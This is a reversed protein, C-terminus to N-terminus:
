FFFFFFFHLESKLIIHPSSKSFSNHDSQIFGNCLTDSFDQSKGSRKWEDVIVHIVPWTRNRFSVAFLPFFVCPKCLGLEHLKLSKWQRMLFPYRRGAQMTCASPISSHFLNPIINIWMSFLCLFTENQMEPHYQFNYEPHTASTNFSPMFHDRKLERLRLNVGFHDTIAKWARSAKYDFNQLNTESLSSSWTRRWLKEKDTKHL